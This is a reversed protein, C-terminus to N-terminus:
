RTTGSSWPARSRISSPVMLANLRRPFLNTVILLINVVVVSELLAVEMGADALSLATMLGCPGAGVVAVDAPRGNLADDQDAVPM